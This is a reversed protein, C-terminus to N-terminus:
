KLFKFTMHHDSYSNILLNLTKAGINISILEPNAHKTQYIAVYLWSINDEHMPKSAKM